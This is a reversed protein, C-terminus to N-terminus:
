LDVRQSAAQRGRRLHDGGNLVTWGVDITSGVEAQEPGLASLVQLDPSNFDITIPKALMNNALSTEGQDQRNNTRFLLFYPGATAVRPIAVSREMVYHDGPALPTQENISQAILYRDTWDFKDDESLYVDDVWNTEASAVGANVVKWSLPVLGGVSASAPAIASELVLDPGAPDIDIAVVMRNNTTDTEPQEAHANAALILYGSGDFNGKPLSVTESYNYTDGAALPDPPYRYYSAV